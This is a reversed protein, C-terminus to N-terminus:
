SGSKQFLKKRVDPLFEAFAQSGMRGVIGWVSRVVASSTKSESDARWSNSLFNNGLDGAFRAYAPHWRGDAHPALFTTRIVYRTRPWIGRTPSKFYRPDEGWLSGLGAEILNGTSIGTLRMGNRKGFGDWHTGYESPIDRATGIASSLPGALILSTPGVTSTLFWHGREARTIPQYDPVPKSASAADPLLNTHRGDQASATRSALTLLFLALIWKM